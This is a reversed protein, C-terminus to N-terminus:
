AHARSRRILYIEDRAAQERRQQLQQFEKLQADRLIDLSERDRRARELRRKQQEIEGDLDRLTAVVVRARAAIAEQQRCVFHIEAAFRASRELELRAAEALASSQRELNTLEQSLLTRRAFLSKLKLEETEERSKRYRLVTALRFRFAMVILFL